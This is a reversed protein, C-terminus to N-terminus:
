HGTPPIIQGGNGNGKGDDKHSTNLPMARQYLKNNSFEPSTASDAFLATSIVTTCIVTLLFVTLIFRKTKM